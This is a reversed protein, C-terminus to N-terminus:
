GGSIRSNIAGAPADTWRDAQGDKAYSTEAM